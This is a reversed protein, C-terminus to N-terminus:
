DVKSIVTILKSGGGMWVIHGNDKIHDIWFDVMEGDLTQHDYKLYYKNLEFLLKGYTIGEIKKTFTKGKISVNFIQKNRDKRM